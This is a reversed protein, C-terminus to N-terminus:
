NQKDFPVSVAIQPVPVNVTQTHESIRVQEPMSQVVPADVVKDFYQRAHLSRCAVHKDLIATVRVQQHWSICTAKKPVVGDIVDWIGDSSVPIGRNTLLTVFDDLAFDARQPDLDSDQHAQDGPQAVPFGTPVDCYASRCGQRHVADAPSECDEVGDTDSLGTAAVGCAQPDRCAQDGPEDVPVLDDDIQEGIKESIREQPVNKVAKGVEAIEESTQPVPVDIIHGGNREPIREVPFHKIMEDIEEQFPLVPEDVAPIRHTAGAPSECDEFGDTDSPGKATDCCARRCCPQHVTDTDLHLLDAFDRRAQDGPQDPQDFPRGCFQRHVAGAPSGGDKACDSVSPGTATDCYARCCCQRHVTDAPLRCAQDGPQDLPVPVDVIQARESIHEEPTIEVVAVVSPM